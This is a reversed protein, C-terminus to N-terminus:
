GCAPAQVFNAAPPRESGILRPRRVRIDPDAHLGYALGLPNKRRRLMQWRAHFMAEGVSSGALLHEYFSSSFEFAVADPIVAETGIFGLFRPPSFLGSFSGVMNPESDAAACANLFVLPRLEDARSHGDARLDNLEKNLDSLEVETPARIYPVGDRFRLKTGPADDGEGECHCCFHHIQIPIKHPVEGDDRFHNWLRDALVATARGEIPGGGPWEQDLEIADRKFFDRIRGTGNVGLHGYFRVPLKPDNELVRNSLPIRGRQVIASFCPFDRVLQSLDELTVGTKPTRPGLLPLMELSLGYDDSARVVLLRPALADSNFPLDPSEAPLLEARLIEAARAPALRDRDFGFLVRVIERGDRHFAGISEIVYALNQQSIHAMAVRLRDLSKRFDRRLSSLQTLSLDSETRLLVEEGSAGPRRIEIICGTDIKIDIVASAAIPGPM